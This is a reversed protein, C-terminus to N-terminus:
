LIKSNKRRGFNELDRWALLCREQTIKWFVCTLKPLCIWNFHSIEMTSYSAESFFFETKCFIKLWWIVKFLKLKRPPTIAEFLQDKKLLGNRAICNVQYIRTKKQMMLKSWDCSNRVQQLWWSSNFEFLAVALNKLNFYSRFKIKSRQNQFSEDRRKM